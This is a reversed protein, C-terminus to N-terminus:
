HYNQNSKGYQIQIIFVLYHIITLFIDLIEDANM